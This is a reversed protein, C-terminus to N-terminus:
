TQGQFARRSGCTRPRRCSTSDAAQGKRVMERAIKAALHGARSGAIVAEFDPECSIARALAPMGEPYDQFLCACVVCRGHTDKALRGLNAAVSEVIRRRQDATGNKLLNQIVYNGYLHCSLWFTDSLIAEALGHLQDPLCQELLRQVARCGYKNRVAQFVNHGRMIEDIIFQSDRPRLHVICQQVVHNAHPDRIAEWVHGKLEEVIAVKAEDSRASEITRQV